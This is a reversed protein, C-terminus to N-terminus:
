NPSFSSRSRSQFSQENLPSPSDTEHKLLPPHYPAPIPDPDPQKQTLQYAKLDFNKLSYQELDEQAQGEPLGYQPIEYDKLKM